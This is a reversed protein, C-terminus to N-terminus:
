KKKKNKKNKNSGAGGAVGSAWSHGQFWDRHRTVTFYPDETSPNGIDRALGQLYRYSASFFLIFKKKVFYLL